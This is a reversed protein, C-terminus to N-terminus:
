AVQKLFDPTGPPDGLARERMNRVAQAANRDHQAGRAYDMIGDFQRKGRAHTDGYGAVLQQSQALECALEYNSSACAMIVDLWAEIAQQEEFYRLSGRRLWKMAAILRLMLFGSISTTAVKRPGTFWKVFERARPSALIQEGLNRPLSGCIEEVRPKLFETVRMIQGTKLGAEARLRSQRARRTKLDAVRYTDEFSMWVALAGATVRFLQHDHEDSDLKLIQEMRDLFEGGYAEDQYDVLRAVCQILTPRLAPAHAAIRNQLSAPVPGLYIEPPAPSAQEETVAALAADFASLNAAVAKGTARIANRYSAAAFPLVGSGAISGLVASSVVTNSAEAIAAMDLTLLRKASRRALALLDEGDMRGDGLVSKEGITYVRHSSTILTTNSPDVIGREVMRVAELLESAVVVDSAGPAPMLAMVPQRDNDRRPFFELYYVTAGTRQAVGPVSTAQVLYNESEAVQVLWSTVVGGGQGGLAALTLTLPRQQETM